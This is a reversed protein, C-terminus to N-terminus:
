ITMETKGFLRRSVSVKPQNTRKEAFTEAEVEDRVRGYIIRHSTTHTHTHTNARVRTHTHNSLNQRLKKTCIASQCKM